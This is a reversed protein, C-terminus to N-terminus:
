KGAELVRVIKWMGRPHNITAGEVPEVEVRQGDKVLEKKWGNELQTLVYPGALVQTGDDLEIVAFTDTTRPRGDESEYTFTVGRVTTLASKVRGTKKSGCATMVLCALLILLVALLKFASTASTRLSFTPFKFREIDCEAHAPSELRSSQERM